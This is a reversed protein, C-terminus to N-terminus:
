KGFGYFCFQEIRLMTKELKSELFRFSLGVMVLGLM